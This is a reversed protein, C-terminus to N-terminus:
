DNTFPHCWVPTRPCSVLFKPTSPCPKLIDPTPPVRSCYNLEDAFMKPCQSPRPTTRPKQIGLVSQYDHKLSLSTSRTTTAKRKRSTGKITRSRRTRSDQRRRSQSSRRSRSRERGTQDDDDDGRSKFHSEDCHDKDLSNGPTFRMTMRDDTMGPGTGTFIVRGIDFRATSQESFNFTIGAM